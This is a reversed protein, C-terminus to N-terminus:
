ARSDIRRFMSYSACPLHTACAPLQPDRGHVPALARSLGYNSHTAKDESWSPVVVVFSLAVGAHDAAKLASNMTRGMEGIVAPIFPPNAEFSGEIVQPGGFVSFFDGM